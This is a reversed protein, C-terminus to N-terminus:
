IDQIEKIAEPVLSRYTNQAFTPLGGLYGIGDKIVEIFGGEGLLELKELVNGSCILM